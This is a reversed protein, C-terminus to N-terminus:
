LFKFGRVQLISYDELKLPTHSKFVLVGELSFLVNFTTKSRKM